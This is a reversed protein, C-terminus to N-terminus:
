MMSMKENPQNINKPWMVMSENKQHLTLPSKFLFKYFTEKVHKPVFHM